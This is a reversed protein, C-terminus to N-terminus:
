VSVSPSGRTSEGQDPASGSRSCRGSARRPSSLRPTWTRGTSAGAATGLSNTTSTASITSSRRPGGSTTPAATSSSSSGSTRTSAAAKHVGIRHNLKSPRPLGHVKCYALYRRELESKTHAEESRILRAVRGAGHRGPLEALLMALHVVPLRPLQDAVRRLEDYELLDALDILTRTRNTIWLGDWFQCHRANLLAASHVTVGSRSARRGTTAVHVIAPHPMWGFCAASTVYAGATSSGAWRLAAALAPTPPLTGSGLTFVGPFRECLAGSRVRRQVVRPHLGHAALDDRHLTDHQRTALARLAPWPPESM